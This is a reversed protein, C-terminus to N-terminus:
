FLTRAQRDLLDRSGEVVAVSVLITARDDVLPDAHKDPFFETKSGMLAVAIEDNRNTLTALKFM